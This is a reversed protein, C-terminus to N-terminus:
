TSEREKVFLISAMEDRSPEYALTKNFQKVVFDWEDVDVDATFVLMAHINLLTDEKAYLRPLLTMASATMSCANSCDVLLFSIILAMGPLPEELLLCSNRLSKLLMRRSSSQKKGGDLAFLFTKDSKDSSQEWSDNERRSRNHSCTTESEKEEWTSRTM